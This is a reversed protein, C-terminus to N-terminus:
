MYSWKEYAVQEYTVHDHKRTFERCRALNCRMGNVNSIIIHQEM